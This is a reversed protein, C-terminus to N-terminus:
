RDVEFIVVIQTTSRNVAPRTEVGVFRTNALGFPRRENLSAVIRKLMDETYTSLTDAIGQMTVPM